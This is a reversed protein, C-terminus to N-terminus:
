ISLYTSLSNVMLRLKSLIKKFISTSFSEDVIYVNGKYHYSVLTYTVDKSTDTTVVKKGHLMAEIVDQDNAIPIERKEIYM